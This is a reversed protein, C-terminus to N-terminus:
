TKEYLHKTMGSMIQGMIRVRPGRPATILSWTLLKSLAGPTVTMKKGLAALTTRAVTEPKEAAGMQMGARM